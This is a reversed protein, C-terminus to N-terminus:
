NVSDLPIIMASVFGSQRKFDDAQWKPHSYFTDDATYLTTRGEEVKLKGRFRRLMCNLNIKNVSKSLLNM